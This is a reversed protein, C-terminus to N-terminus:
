PVPEPAVRVARPEPLALFLAGLALKPLYAIAYLAISYSAATVRDVGMWVLTV